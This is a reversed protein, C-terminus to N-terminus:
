GEKKIKFYGNVDNAMSGDIKNFDYEVAGCLSDCRDFMEDSIETEINGCYITELDYCKKFMGTTNSIKINDFCSINLCTLDTATLFMDQTSKMNGVDTWNLELTALNQCYGFMGSLDDLSKASWGDLNITKVRSCNFFMRSADKLNKTNWKSLDISEMTSNVFMSDAYVLSDTTLNQAVQYDYLNAGDFMHNMSKCKPTQMTRKVVTDAYASSGVGCFAYDMSEVDYTKPLIMVNMSVCGYFIENMSIASKFNMDSMDLEQLLSCNKFVRSAMLVSKTNMNKFDVTKLAICNEFLGSIDTVLSIDVLGLGTISEVYYLDKFAENFPGAIKLGKGVLVEVTNDVYLFCNIGDFQWFDVVGEERRDEVFCISKIDEINISPDIWSHNSWSENSIRIYQLSMEDYEPNVTKIPAELEQTKGTFGWYITFSLLTFVAVCGLILAAWKKLKEFNLSM